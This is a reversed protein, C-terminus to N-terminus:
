LEHRDTLALYRRASEALIAAGIPLAEEDLDFHPSHALRMEGKKIGLDFMAGPAQALFYSFDEAGMESKQPLVKEEGLLDIAVEQILETVREENVMVPYGEEITLRFDGGLARAVQFAKELEAHLQERVGREFSRITGTLGVEEPIINEATGGQITGISIVARKVPDLRRSVIGQIALIVEGAIFIPDVGRHPYAGHCGRGMITAEFSDVAAAMPGPSIKVVGSETESDVHLALIAEVGEMAGEEVMRVAGSKGEEDVREESPQFLFRVEGELEMEELLMAAGLAVAVHADHGCAHMVGPVRSRYPVENLEQIPLADMDARIAVVPGGEGLYGIVGTKAVGTQVKLGLSELAEAILAATKVERFGLEPHRHITRRLRILEEKLEKARALM